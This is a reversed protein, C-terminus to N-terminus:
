IPFQRGELRNTLLARTEDNQECLTMDCKGSGSTNKCENRTINRKFQECEIVEFSVEEPTHTILAGNGALARKKLRAFYEPNGHTMEEAKLAAMASGLRVKLTNVRCAYEKLTIKGADLERDLKETKLIIQQWVDM